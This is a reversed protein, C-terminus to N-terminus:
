FCLMWSCLWTVAAERHMHLCFSAPRIACRLVGVCWPVVACSACCGVGKCLWTVAERCMCVFRLPGSQVACCVTVGVCVCVCMSVSMSVCRFYRSSRVEISYFLYFSV